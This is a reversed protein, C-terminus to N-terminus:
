NESTSEPSYNAAVSLNPDTPYLLLHSPENPNPTSVDTPSNLETAATGGLNTPTPPSNFLSKSCHQTYKRGGRTRIGRKKSSPTKASPFQSPSPSPSPPPPTTLPQEELPKESPVISINGPEEGFHHSVSSSLILELDSSSQFYDTVCTLDSCDVISQSEANSDETTSAGTLSPVTDRIRLCSELKSILNGSGFRSRHCSSFEIGYLFQIVEWLHFVEVPYHINYVFFLKFCFTYAEIVNSVPFSYDLLRVQVRELSLSDKGVAIVYPQVVGDGRQKLKLHYAELAIEDEVIVLWTAIVAQSSIPKVHSTSSTSKTVSRSYTAYPLSLLLLKM